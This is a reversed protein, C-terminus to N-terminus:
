GECNFEAQIIQPDRASAEPEKYDEQSGDDQLVSEDEEMEQNEEIADDEAMAVDDGDNAPIDQNLPEQSLDKKHFIARPDYGAAKVEEVTHKERLHRRYLVGISHGENVFDIDTCGQVRCRCLGDADQYRAKRPCDSKRRLEYRRHDSWQRGALPFM